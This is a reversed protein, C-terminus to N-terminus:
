WGGCCWWSSVRAEVPYIKVGFTLHQGRPSLPWINVGFTMPWDFNLDSSRYPLPAIKVIVTLPWRGTLHGTWHDSFNVSCKGVQLGSRHQFNSCFRNSFELLLQLAFNKQPWLDGIPWTVQGTTVVIYVICKGGGVHLRDQLYSCFGNFVRRSLCCLKRSLIIIVLLFQTQVLAFVSNTLFTTILNFFFLWFTWQFPFPSEM